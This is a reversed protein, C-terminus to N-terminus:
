SSLNIKMMILEAVTLFNQHVNNVLSKVSALQMHTPRILEPASTFYNVVAISLIELVMLTKIEKKTKDEKYVKEFKAISYDDEDTM